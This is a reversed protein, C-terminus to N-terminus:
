PLYKRKLRRIFRPTAIILAPILLVGYRHIPMRYRKLYKLRIKMGQLMQENQKDASISSEDNYRFCLVEQLNLFRTKDFLNLWLDYDQGYRISEDYGGADKILSTNFVVASHAFPNSSFIFRKIEEDNKPLIIRERIGNSINEYNSGIVGIDRMSDLVGIQKELKKPHWLDGADIRATYPSKIIELGKNLSRTLGINEENEIIQFRNEGFTGQWKRLIDRTNDTSGDNIAVVSFDQLTQESISKFTQNLFEGSNYASILVACKMAPIEVTNGM